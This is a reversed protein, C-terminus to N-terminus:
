SSRARGVVHSTVGAVLGVFGLVLLALLLLGLSFPFEDAGEPAPPLPIPRTTPEEGSGGGSVQTGLVGTNKGAVPQTQGDRVGGTAASASPTAPLAELDRSGVTTSPTAVPGTSGTLTDLALRLREIRRREVPTVGGRRLRAIEARLLRLVRSRMEPSVSALAAELRRLNARVNRGLEIRELLTELRRPLRDFRTKIRPRSSRASTRRSGSGSSSATSGGGSSATSGGSSTGGGTVTSGSGSTAQTLLGGVTSGASGGSSGSGTTQNVTDEVTGTVQDVTDEATGAVEDVTTTATDVVNSVTAEADPLTVTDASAPAGTVLWAGLVFALCATRRM